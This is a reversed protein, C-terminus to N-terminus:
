PGFIFTTYTANRTARIFVAIRNMGYFTMNRSNESMSLIYGQIWTQKESAPFYKIMKVFWDIICQLQDYM